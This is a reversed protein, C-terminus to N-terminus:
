RVGSATTLWQNLVVISWTRRWHQPGLYNGMTPDASRQADWETLVQAPAVSRWAADPRAADQLADGLAGRALWSAIPITFGQKARSAARDVVPADVSEAIRAGYPSNCPEGQVLPLERVM